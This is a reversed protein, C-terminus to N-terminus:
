LIIIQYGITSLFQRQYVLFMTLDNFYTYSIARKGMVIIYAVEAYRKITLNDYNSKDLYFFKNVLRRFNEQAQPKGQRVLRHYFEQQITLYVPQDPVRYSITSKIANVVLPNFAIGAAIFGDNINCKNNVQYCNCCLLPGIFNWFLPPIRSFQDPTLNDALFKRGDFKNNVSNSLYFKQIFPEIQSSEPPVRIIQHGVITELLVIMFAWYEIFYISQNLPHPPSYQILGGYSIGDIVRTSKGFDSLKFTIEDGQIRVLINNPKIDNHILTFHHMIALSGGVNRILTELHDIRTEVSVKRSWNKLDNSLPEMIIYGRKGYIDYCMDHITVIGELPRLKLLLDVETMFELSYGLSEKTLRSEKVVVTGTPSDYLSVLGFTGHGVDGRKTSRSLLDTGSISCQSM